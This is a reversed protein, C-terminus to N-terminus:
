HSVWDSMAKASRPATVANDYKLFKVVPRQRTDASLEGIFFLGFGQETGALTDKIEPM